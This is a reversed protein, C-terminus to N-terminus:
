RVRVREWGCPCRSEGEREEQIEEYGPLATGDPNRRCSLVQIPVQVIIDFLKKKRAKETENGHEARFVLKLDHGVVVNSKKNWNEEQELQYIPPRLMLPSSTRRLFALTRPGDTNTRSRFPLLTSSPSSPRRSRGHRRFPFIPFLLSFKWVRGPLRVTLTIHISWGKTRGLPSSTSAQRSEENLCLLGSM